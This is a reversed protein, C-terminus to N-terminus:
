IILTNVVKVIAQETNTTTDEKTFRVRRAGFINSTARGIIHRYDDESRVLNTSFQGEALAVANAGFFLTQHLQASTVSGGIGTYAAETIENSGVTLSAPNNGGLITRVKDYTYIL